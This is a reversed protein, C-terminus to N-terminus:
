QAEDEFEIIGTGYGRISAEISVKHRGKGYPGPVRIELEAGVPVDLPSEPSPQAVPRGNLLVTVASADIPQGDVSVKLPADVQATALVNKLKFSLQGESARMSGKVYLRRLLAKPIYGM